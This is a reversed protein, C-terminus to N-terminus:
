HHGLIRYCPNIPRRRAGACGYVDFANMYRQQDHGHRTMVEDNGILDDKIMNGAFIFLDGIDFTGRVPESWAPGFVAVRHFPGEIVDIAPKTIRLSETREVSALFKTWIRANLFVVPKRVSKESIRTTQRCPGTYDESAINRFPFNSGITKVVLNCQRKSKTM